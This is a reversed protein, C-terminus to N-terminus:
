SHQPRVEHVRYRAKIFSESPPIRGMQMLIRRVTWHHKGIKLGIARVSMGNDHLAAIRRYEGLAPKAGTSHWGQPPPKVGRAHRSVAATGVGCVIAVHGIRM